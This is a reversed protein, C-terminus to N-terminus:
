AAAEETRRAPVLRSIKQVTDPTRLGCWQMIRHVPKGNWIQRAIFTNRLTQPGQCSKNYGIAVMAEQIILFAEASSIACTDPRDDEFNCYRAPFLHESEPQLVALKDRWRILVDVAAPSVPAIRNIHFHHANIELSTVGADQICQHPTLRQAEGVTIGAGIFVLRLAKNRLDSWTEETQETSWEIFRDAMEFRLITPAPKEFGQHRTLDILPQVPNDKRLEMIRLHEYINNLLNLYRRRTTKAAPKGDRGQKSCLFIDIHESQADALKVKKGDLWRLYAKFMTEYQEVSHASFERHFVRQNEKWDLFAAHPDKTWRAQMSLLTQEPTLAQPPPTNQTANPSENGDVMTFTSDELDVIENLDYVATSHEPNPDINPM